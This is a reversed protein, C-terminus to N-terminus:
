HFKLLLLLLLLIGSMIYASRMSGTRRIELGFPSLVLKAFKFYQLAIPIGIVTVFCFVGCLLLALALWLGGLLLWLLNLGTALCGVSGDTQKRFVDAGYPSLMLNAMKFFQIGFPIGIITCCALIGYIFLIIAGILGGFILWLFNGFARLVTMIAAATAAGFMATMKSLLRSSKEEPVNNAPPPEGAADDIGVMDPVTKVSRYDTYGVPRPVEKKVEPAPELLIGVPLGPEEALTEASSSINEAAPVDAVFTNAFINMCNQCGVLGLRPVYDLCYHAGCFPCAIRSMGSEHDELKVACRFAANRVFLLPNGCSACSASENQSPVKQLVHCSPCEVSDSAAAIHEETIIIDFRKGCFPCDASQGNWESYVHVEAQCHSCLVTIKAM